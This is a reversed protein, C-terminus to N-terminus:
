RKKVINKLTNPAFINPILNDFRLYKSQDDLMPMAEKALFIQEMLLDMSGGNRSILWITRPM